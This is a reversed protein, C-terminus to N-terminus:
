DIRLCKESTKGVLLTKEQNVPNVNDQLKTMVELIIQLMFKTIM